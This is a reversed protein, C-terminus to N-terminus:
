KSKLSDNDKEEFYKKTDYKKILKFFKVIELGLMAAADKKSDTSMIAYKLLADKIIYNMSKWIPFGHLPFGIAKHALEFKLVILEELSLNSLLIEFVDNSKQKERLIKSISFNHNKIKKKM